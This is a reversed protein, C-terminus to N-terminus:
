TGGDGIQEGDEAEDYLSMEAEDPPEFVAEYARLDDVTLPASGFLQELGRRRVRDWRVDFPVPLYRLEVAAGLGRAM